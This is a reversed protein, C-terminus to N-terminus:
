ILELLEPFKDTKMDELTFHGKDKFEHIKANILVKNIIEFSKLIDQDDDKSFLIHIINVRDTMGLDIDFNFFDKSWKQNPDIWPAVLILKDIYKKNESLWRVLFGAGCSHGILISNENVDFKEFVEKWKSYDLKWPELMEPTQTFINKILLQKQLWPFWHSNSLSPYKENFYEEEDCVGHIILANKM